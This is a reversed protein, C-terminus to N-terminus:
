KKNDYTLKLTLTKNGLTSGVEIPLYGTGRKNRLDTDTSLTGHEGPKITWPLPPSQITIFENVVHIDNIVLDFPSLNTVTFALVVNTEGARAVFERTDADWAVLSAPMQAPRHPTPWVIVTQDLVKGDLDIKKGARLKQLDQRRVQELLDEFYDGQVQDHNKQFDLLTKKGDKDKITYLTKRHSKYWKKLRDEIDPAKMMADAERTAQEMAWQRVLGTRDAQVQTRVPDAQDLGREKAEALLLQDGLVDQLMATFNTPNHLDPRSEAPIGLYARLFVGTTVTGAKCTVLPQDKEEATLSATQADPSKIANTLAAYGAPSIHIDAQDFIRQRLEEKLKEYEELSKVKADAEQEIFLAKMAEDRTVALMGRIDPTEYAKEEYGKWIWFYDDLLQNLKDRKEVSTLPKGDKGPMFTSNIYARFESLPIEIRCEKVSVLVPNNSSVPTLDYLRRVDEIAASAPGATFFCSFLIAAALPVFSFPQSRM